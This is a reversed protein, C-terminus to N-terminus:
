LMPDVDNANLVYIVVGIVAGKTTQDGIQRKAKNIKKGTM